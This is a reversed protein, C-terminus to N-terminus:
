YNETLKGLTVQTPFIIKNSRRINTLVRGVNTTKGNLSLLGHGGIFDSINDYVNGKDQIESNILAEMHEPSNIYILFKSGLWFRSLSGYQQGFM